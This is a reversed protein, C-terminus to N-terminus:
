DCYARRCAVNHRKYFHNYWFTSMDALQYGAIIFFLHHYKVPSTRHAEITLLCISRKGNFPM